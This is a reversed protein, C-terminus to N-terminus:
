NKFEDINISINEYFSGCNSWYTDINFSQHKNFVKGCIEYKNNYYSTCAGNFNQTQCIPTTQHSMSESIVAVVPLNTGLAFGIGPYIVFKILLFAIIINVIWSLISDENWLFNWFAKLSAIIKSKTHKKDM